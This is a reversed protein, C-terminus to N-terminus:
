GGMVLVGGWYGGVAICIAAVLTVLLYIGFAGRSANERVVLRWAALGIILGFAPWIFDHHKLLAGSGLVQWGSLILGSGVAAISVVAGLLIAYFSAVHLDRSAPDRHVIYAILDFLFSAILLAIPFHTAGGHFDAWFTSNM